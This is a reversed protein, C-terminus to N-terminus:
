GPAESGVEQGLNYRLPQLYKGILLWAMNEAAKVAGCICFAISMTFWNTSKKEMITNYKKGIQALGQGM